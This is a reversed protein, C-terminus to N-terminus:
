REWPGRWDPDHTNSVQVIEGTDDNIIVYHGDARVYGTAPSSGGVRWDRTEEIRGPKAIVEELAPLDHTDPDGWGRDRIQRRIKDGFWYEIIIGERRQNEPTNDSMM